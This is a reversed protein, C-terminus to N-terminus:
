FIDNNIVICERGTNEVSCSKKLVKFFFFTDPNSIKGPDLQRRQFNVCSGQGRQGTKHGLVTPHVEDHEDSLSQAPTVRHDLIDSHHLPAVDWTFSFSLKFIFFIIYLPSFFCFSIWLSSKQM